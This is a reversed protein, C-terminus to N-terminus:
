HTKSHIKKLYSRELTKLGFFDILFDRNYDISCELRDAFKLANNYAKESILQPDNNFLKTMTDIYSNDTEKHLKM